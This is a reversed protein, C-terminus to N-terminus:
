NKKLLLILRDSHDEEFKNLQYDGFVEIINLGSISAMKEFDQLNFANVREEFHFMKKKDRIHINKNIHSGDFFREIKFVISDIEKTEELVLNDLVKQVNFFDIVLIGNPLLNECVSNLVEINENTNEFYGFSTFLNFVYNFHKSKYINRMDHHDFNAGDINMKMAEEKAKAISHESLDVGTSVYGKKALQITHRGKGCALDLVINGPKMQLHDCIKDIFKSAEKEDRNKYLIHYYKSNFWNIFWDKKM